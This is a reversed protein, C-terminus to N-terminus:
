PSRPAECIACSCQAPLTKQLDAKCHNKNNATGTCRWQIERHGKPSQPSQMNNTRDQFRSQTSTVHSRRRSDMKNNMSQLSHLSEVDGFCVQVDSNGQVHALGSRRCPQRTKCGALLRGLYHKWFCCLFESM